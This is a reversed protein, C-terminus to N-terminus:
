LWFNWKIHQINPNQSALLGTQMHLLVTKVKVMRRICYLVYVMDLHIMHLTFPKKFDSYSLIPTKTCLDKLEQFAVQCPETWKESLYKSKKGNNTALSYLLKAVQAYKLILRQYYNTFGLFSRLKTIMQSTSWNQIADMKKPDMQIGQELVIHGLYKLSTKFVKFKSPKFKLGVDWLKQAVDM